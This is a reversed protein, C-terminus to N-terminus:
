LAGGQAVALPKAARCILSGDARWVPNRGLAACKAVGGDALAAAYDAEDAVDQAAQTDTPGDLLYRASLIFAVAVALCWRAVALGSARARRYSAHPRSSGLGPAVHQDPAASRPHHSDHSVLRAGCAHLGAKPMDGSGVPGAALATPQVRHGNESVPATGHAAGIVPTYLPLLITNAPIEIVQGPAFADSETYPPLLFTSAPMAGPYRREADQAAQIQGPFIGTYETVGPVKIRFSLM